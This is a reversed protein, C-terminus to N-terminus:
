LGSEINLSNGISVLCIFVGYLFTGLLDRILCGIALIIGYYLGVGRKARSNGELDSRRTEKKNM